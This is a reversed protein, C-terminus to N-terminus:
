RRPPPKGGFKSDYGIKVRTEPCMFSDRPRKANCIPILITRRVLGGRRHVVLRVPVIYVEHKVSLVSTVRGGREKITETWFDLSRNDEVEM